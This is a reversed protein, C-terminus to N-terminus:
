YAASARAKDNDREKKKSRHIWQKDGFVPREYNTKPPPPTPEDEEVSQEMPGSYQELEEETM